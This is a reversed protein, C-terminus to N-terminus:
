YFCYLYTQFFFIVPNTIPFLLMLVNIHLVKEMMTMTLHFGVCVKYVNDLFISELSFVYVNRIGATYICQTTYSEKLAGQCWFLKTWKLHVLTQKRVYDAQAHFPVRTRNAEFLIYFTFSHVLSLFHCLSSLM